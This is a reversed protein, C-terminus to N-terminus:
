RRRQLARLSLAFAAGWVVHAAIMLGNRRPPQETAPPYIGTGPLWGLYSGGWVGLAYTVGRGIRPRAVARPALAYLAGMAAGYGFHAALTTWARQAEDLDDVVGARQAVEMTIERPPLPYQEQPPLRRHLRGMLLTMPATAAAGALAGATADRLRRRLWSPRATAGEDM